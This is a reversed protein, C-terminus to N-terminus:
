NCLRIASLLMNWFRQTATTSTCFTTHNLSRGMSYRTCVSYDASSGTPLPNIMELFIDCVVSYLFVSFSICILSVCVHFVSPSTWVCYNYRYSRLMVQTLVCAAVCQYSRSNKSTPDTFVWRQFHNVRYSRFRNFKGRSSHQEERLWRKVICFSKNAVWRLVLVQYAPSEIQTCAGLLANVDIFDTPAHPPTHVHAPKHFHFRVSTRGEVDGQAADFLFSSDGENATLQVGGPTLSSLKPQELTYVGPPSFRINRELM